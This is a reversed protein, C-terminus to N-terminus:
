SLQVMMLMILSLVVLLILLLVVMFVITTGDGDIDIISGDDVNDISCDDDDDDDTVIISGDDDIVVTSGYDVIGIPTDDDDGKKMDDDKGILPDHDDCSRVFVFVTLGSIIIILFVKELTWFTALTTSSVKRRIEDGTNMNEVPADITTEFVMGDVHESVRDSQLAERAMNDIDMVFCVSISNIIINAIGQSTM